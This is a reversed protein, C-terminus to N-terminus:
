QLGRSSVRQQTKLAADQNSSQFILRESLFINLQSEDLGGHFSVLQKLFLNMTFPWRADGLYEYAKALVGESYIHFLYDPLPSWTNSIATFTPAAQQWTLKLTYVKDPVPLLRFTVTGAGNDLQPAIKVPLNQTTDEALVLSIELEKSIGSNSISAKELWGFNPAAFVSATAVGGVESVPGVNANSYAVVLVTASSSIVTGSTGNLFLLSAHTFGAFNVIAGFATTGGFGASSLTLINSAITVTTPNPATMTVASATSAVYDQTGAVTTIVTTARNWRWTFPPSLITQRVWDGISLAPDATRGGAPGTAFTLPALRIYQSAYQFAEALTHSM